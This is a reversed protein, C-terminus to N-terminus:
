AGIPLNVPRVIYMYMQIIYLKYKIKYTLTYLGYTHSAISHPSTYLGSSHSAISHPPSPTMYIKM